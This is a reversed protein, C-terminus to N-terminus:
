RPRNRRFLLRSTAAVCRSRRAWTRMSVSVRASWSGPPAVTSSTASVNYARRTNLIIDDPLIYVRTVGNEDTAKRIKYADQLDSLTMGVLQVNGLDM